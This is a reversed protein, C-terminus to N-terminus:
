SSQTRDTSSPLLASARDSALAVASAHFLLFVAFLGITVRAVTARSSYGLAAVPIWVKAPSGV